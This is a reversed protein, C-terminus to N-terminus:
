PTAPPPAPGIAQEVVCVAAPGDITALARLKATATAEIASVRARTLGFEKAINSVRRREGDLGFRWRLIVEERPTLQSLLRALVKDMTVEEGCAPCVWWTFRLDGPSAAAQMPREGDWGCAHCHYRIAM